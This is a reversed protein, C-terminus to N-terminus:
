SQVYVSFVFYFYFMHAMGFTHNLGIYYKTDITKLCETFAFGDIPVSKGSAHVYGCTKDSFVINLNQFLTLTLSFM